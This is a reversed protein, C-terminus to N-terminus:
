IGEREINVLEIRVCVKYLFYMGSANRTNANLLILPFKIQNYKVFYVFSKSWPESSMASYKELM